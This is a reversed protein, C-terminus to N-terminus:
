QKTSTKPHSVQATPSTPCSYGAWEADIKERISTFLKRGAVFFSMRMPLYVGERLRTQEFYLDANDINALLGWFVRTRETLRAEVKVIDYDNEDVWIKGALRNLLYDPRRRIPLDRSKPSFQMVVMPRGGIVDRGTVEGRYREFLEADLPVRYQETNDPRNSVQKDVFRRRKEKEEALDAGALPRGNKEVWATYSAGELPGVTYRRVEHERVVGREDYKDIVRQQTYQCASSTRHAEPNKAREIIRRVVEDAKPLPVPDGASAVVARWLIFVLLAAGTFGIAAGRCSPSITSSSLLRITDLMRTPNLARTNLARTTDPTRTMDLPRMNLKGFKGNGCYRYVHARPRRAEM